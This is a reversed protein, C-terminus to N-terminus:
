IGVETNTRNVKIQSHDLGYSLNVYDRLFSLM